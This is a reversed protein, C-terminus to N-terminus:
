KIKHLFKFNRDPLIQSRILQFYKETEAPHSRFIISYLRQQNIPTGLYVLDTVIQTWDWLPEEQGDKMKVTVTKKDDLILGDKDSVYAPIYGQVKDRRPWTNKVDIHENDVVKQAWKKYYDPSHAEPGADTLNFYQFMVPSATAATPLHPQLILTTADNYPMGFMNEPYPIQLYYSYDDRYIKVDDREPDTRLMPLPTADAQEARTPTPIGTSKVITPTPKPAEHTPSPSIPSTTPKVPITEVSAQPKVPKPTETTQATDKPLETPKPAAAQQQGKPPQETKGAQDGPQKISVRIDVPPIMEVAKKLGLAGAGAIAGVILDRRTIRHHQEAPSTSM